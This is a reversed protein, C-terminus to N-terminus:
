ESEIDKFNEKVDFIRGDSGRNEVNWAYIYLFEYREIESLELAFPKSEPRCKDFFFPQEIVQLPEGDLQPEEEHANECKERHRDQDTHYEFVNHERWSIRFLM